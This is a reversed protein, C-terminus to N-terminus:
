QQQTMMSFEAVIQPISIWVMKTLPTAPYTVTVDVWWHDGEFVWDATVICGGATTCPLGAGILVEKAHAIAAAEIDAGSGPPPELITSAYRAGDRVSRQVVMYTNLMWALDITAILVIFFAIIWFAFEIAANGRRRSRTPIM